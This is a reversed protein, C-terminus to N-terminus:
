IMESLRRFHFGKQWVRAIIEALHGANWPHMLFIAGKKAGSAYHSALSYGHPNHTTFYIDEVSWFATTAYGMDGLVQLMRKSKGGGPSRFMPFDAKMRAVYTAGLVKRAVKEWELIEKKMSDASWNAFSMSHSVSHNCIQHGMKIANRWRTPNQTLERSLLFFTGKVKKQNLVKLVTKLGPGGDDFTLAINNKRKNGFFIIKSPMMQTTVKCVARKKGDVTYVCLYAVGKKKAQMKGEKNVSVISSDSSRWILKKNSANSPLVTAILEVPHDSKLSLNSRNLKVGQVPQKVVVLCSASKASFLTKATITVRGPSKAKVLGLISVTAIKANSTRWILERFTANVPYISAILRYSKQVSLTITKQNMVIKSIPVATPTPTPSETVIPTVTPTAMLDQATTADVTEIRQMFFYGSVVLCLILLGIIRKRIMGRHM